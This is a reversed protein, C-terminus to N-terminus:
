RVFSVVPSTARRGASDWLVGYLTHTGNPLSALNLQVKGTTMVESLYGSSFCGDDDAAYPMNGSGYSIESPLLPRSDLFFCWSSLKLLSSTSGLVSIDWYTLMSYPKTVSITATLPTANITAQRSAAAKNVATIGKQITNWYYKVSAFVTPADEDCGKIGYSVIGVLNRSGKTTGSFLPGGSDGNCAGGYVQETRFYRGAAITTTANFSKGFWKRGAKPDAKVSLKRLQTVEDGNQDNGWGAMLLKTKTGVTIKKDLRAVRSVNAPEALHLVGV